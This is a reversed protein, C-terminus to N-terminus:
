RSQKKQETSVIQRACFTQGLEIEGASASINTWFYKVTLNDLYAGSALAGGATIWFENSIM